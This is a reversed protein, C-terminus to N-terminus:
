IFIGMILGVQVDNVAFLEDKANTYGIGMLKM